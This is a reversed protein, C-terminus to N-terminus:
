GLASFATFHFAAFLRYGDSERLRALLTRFYGPFGLGVSGTPKVSSQLVTTAVNDM